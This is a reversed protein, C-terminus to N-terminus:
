ARRFRLFGVAAPLAAVAALLPWSAALGLLAVTGGGVVSIAMGGGRLAISQVSAMSSREREPVSYHLITQEAVSRAGLVLYLLAYVIAFAGANPALPVLALCGIAGAQLIAYLGYRGPRGLARAAATGLHMMAASGVAAAVMGVCSVMGLMWTGTGTSLAEFWPQWYTEVVVMVAGASLSEALVLPVGGRGGITARMGSLESALRATISASRRRDAPFLAAAGALSCISAIVICAILLTYTPDLYALAAGALGGGGVGISELLALAGNVKDLAVLRGEGEDHMGMARELEIAELTGTRAALSIGRLVSFVVLAAIGSGALLFAYAAIQLAMSFIFVTRRGVIDAAIGSPIECACTAVIAVGVFIPLTELTAGRELMLLSLVPAYLGTGVNLVLFLLMHPVPLPRERKGSSDFRHM